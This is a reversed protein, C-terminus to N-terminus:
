LLGYVLTAVCAVAMGLLNIFSLKVPAFILAAGITAPRRMSNALSHSVASMRGLCVWSLQLYAYFSAGNLLLLRLTTPSRAAALLPGLGAGGGFLARVTILAAQLVAGIATLQLFSELAGTGYRRKLQKGLLGRLSFCVNSLAALALGVGTAKFPGVASCACGAVVPLLAAVKRLPVRQEFFFFGLLLTTLPEAARLVMVLSVHMASFCANLTIFGGTFAAALWTTDLLQRTSRITADTGPVATVIGVGCAAAVVLQALTLSQAGLSKILVKSSQNCVVSAAYWLVILAITVPTGGPTEVDDTSALLLPHCSPQALPCRPLSSALLPRYASAPSAPSPTFAYSAALLMSDTGRGVLGRSRSKRILVATSASREM